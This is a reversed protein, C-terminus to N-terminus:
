DFYINTIRIFDNEATASDKTNITTTGGGSSYTMNRNNAMTLKKNTTDISADASVVACSGSYVAFEQLRFTDDGSGMYFHNFFNDSSSSRISNEFYINKITDSTIMTIFAQPLNLDGLSLNVSDTFKCKNLLRCTSEFYYLPSVTNKCSILSDYACKIVHINNFMDPAEGNFNLASFDLKTSSIEMIYQSDLLNILNCYRILLESYFSQIAVSNNLTTNKISINHLRVKSNQIRLGNITVKTRDNSSSEISVNQTNQIRAFPYSGDALYFSASKYFDNGLIDLAEGLTRFPNTSSGIPNVSSSNIDVYVNKSTPQNFIPQNVIENNILDGTFYQCMTYEGSVTEYGYSAVFIKGNELPTIQEVERLLYLDDVFKKYNFKQIVENEMNLVVLGYPNISSLYIYDNNIAVGQQILTNYETFRQSYPTFDFNLTFLLTVSNNTRDYEYLTNNTNYCYYKKTVKDYVFALINFTQNISLTEKVALTEYDLVIIDNTPTSSVGNSLSLPTIFIESTENNYELWNAHGGNQIVAQNIVTNTSINIKQILVNNDGETDNILARVIVNNGIYVCGQMHFYDDEISILQRSLRKLNLDVFSSVYLKDNLNDNLTDIKGDLTNYNNDVKENLEGFIEQNIIEAMTGAEVMADLKNNIETQVDLDDFYNDVYNKLQIYLNQLEVVAEANNNLAPIVTEELYKGIALVQEEYSLSIKYSSPIMGITYCFRNIIDQVKDVPKLENINSM